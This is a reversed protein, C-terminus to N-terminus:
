MKKKQRGKIILYIGVIVLTACGLQGYIPNFHTVGTNYAKMEDFFEMAGGLIMLTGIIIKWNM